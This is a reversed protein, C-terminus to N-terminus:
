RAKCGREGAMTIKLGGAAVNFRLGTELSELEMMVGRENKLLTGSEGRAIAFGGSLGFYKGSFDKPSMLNYVAGQADIKVAGVDGVSLGRICFGYQQGQYNLTGHGWKYGVGAAMVGGTLKVTADIHTPPNTEDAAACRAAAIGALCAVQLYTRFTLM